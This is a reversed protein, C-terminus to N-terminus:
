ADQKTEEPRNGDPDLLGSRILEKAIRGYAGQLRWALGSRILESFLEITEDRNLEGAELDMMLDVLGTRTAM